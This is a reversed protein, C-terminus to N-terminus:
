TGTKFGTGIYINSYFGQKAITIMGPWLNNKIM